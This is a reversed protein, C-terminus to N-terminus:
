EPPAPESGDNPLELADIARAQVQHLGILIREIDAFLQKQRAALGQLSQHVRRLALLSPTSAAVGDLTDFATEGKAHQMYQQTLLMAEDESVAEDKLKLILSDVQANRVQKPLWSLRTSSQNTPQCPNSLKMRKTSKCTRLSAWLYISGRFTPFSSNPYNNTRKLYVLFCDLPGWWLTVFHDSMSVCVVASSFVSERRAYRNVFHVPADYIAKANSLLVHIVM